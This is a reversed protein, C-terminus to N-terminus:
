YTTETGKPMLITYAGKIYVDINNFIHIVNKCLILGVPFKIIAIIHLQPIIKINMPM